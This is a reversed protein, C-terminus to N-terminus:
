VKAPEPVTLDQLVIAGEPCAHLCDGCKVCVTQRIAFPRYGGMFPKIKEGHIANYKCVNKCIGCMTCKEPIIRYQIFAACSKDPCVGAIHQAFIDSELWELMFRATDKGKKCMSSELMDTAIRKLNAVDGASGSGETLATLIMRSEYSGMSCPFCKGCMPGTLFESVYYLARQAPCGLKEAETKIDEVKIIKTDAM